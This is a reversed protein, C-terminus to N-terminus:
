ELEKRIKEWLEESAKLLGLFMDAHHKNKFYAILVKKNWIRWGEWHNGTLKYNM